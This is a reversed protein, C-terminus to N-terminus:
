YTCGTRFPFCNAHSELMRARLRPSIGESNLEEGDCGKEHEAIEVAWYPTSGQYFRIMKEGTAGIHVIAM